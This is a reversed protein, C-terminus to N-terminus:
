HSVHAGGKRLAQAERIAEIAESISLGFQKRLLPVIPQSIRSTTSAALWEAALSIAATSEHCLGSM